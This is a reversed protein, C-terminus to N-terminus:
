EWVIVKDVKPTRPQRCTYLYDFLFSKYLLFLYTCNVKYVIVKVCTMYLHKASQVILRLEINRRNNEENSM